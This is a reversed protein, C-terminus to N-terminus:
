GNGATTAPPERRGRGVVLGRRFVEIDALQAERFWAEVTAARQPHDHAPALMDFTDLVAWDKLQSANLPLIGEYNAVPLAHRLRRGIRPVRGLALSVPWLLNVMRSVFSLLRAAQMRKTFPRLWYKPWLVNAALRPYLDVAIRGGPAIQEVLAAFAQRVDPTHQLVGFCYVFEFWRRRFPLHYVDAQVVNLRPHPGLNQRCADVATSYDVAVLRAGANLAVEAFRGAGCGVDLTWRGNMDGPKWGAQEFFRRTSIPERTTSDLQTRRFRNWQFGFSSSYNEVPVFRPVFQVIPYTAACSGCGLSGSEIEDQAEEHIRLSLTHGCGPCALVDMLERRM